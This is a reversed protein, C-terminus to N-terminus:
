AVKILNIIDSSIQLVNVFRLKDVLDQIRQETIVNSIVGGANYKNPVKIGERFIKRQILFALTSKPIDYTLKKADIWDEIAKRPPWTGPNRGYQMQFSYKAGYLIARKDTNFPVLSQEFNGSARLGLRDYEAILDLRIQELWEKIIDSQTYAM